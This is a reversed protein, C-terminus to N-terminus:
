MCWCNGKVQPCVLPSSLFINHLNIPSIATTLQHHHLKKKKKKIEVATSFSRLNFDAHIDITGKGELTRRHSTGLSMKLNKIWNLLSYNRRQSLWPLKDSRTRVLLGLAVNRLRWFFFSCNESRGLLPRVAPNNPPDFHTSSGYPFLTFAPHCRISLASTDPTTAQTEQSSRQKPLGASPYCDVISRACVEAHGFHPACVHM